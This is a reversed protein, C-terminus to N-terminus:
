ISKEVSSLICLFIVRLVPHQAPKFVISSSTGDLVVRQLSDFSIPERENRM